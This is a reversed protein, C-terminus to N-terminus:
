RIRYLTCQLIGSGAPRPRAHALDTVFLSVGDRDERDRLVVARVERSATAADIGDAIGQVVGETLTNLKEPRAITLIAISDREEYRVETM